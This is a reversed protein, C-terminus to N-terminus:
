VIIQQLYRNLFQHAEEQSEVRHNVKFMFPSVRTPTLPAPEWISVMMGEESQTIAYELGAPIAHDDIGASVLVKDVWDMDSTAPRSLAHM